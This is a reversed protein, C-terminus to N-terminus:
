GQDAAPLLITFTTGEGPTSRVKIRGGCGDIIRATIALGLGTGKGPEKTTFFPEFIRDLEDPAIGSGTDSVEMKLWPREGAGEEERLVRLKLTGGGPMADRANIALNILAQQVQHRDVCVPPLGEASEQVIGISKFAGQGELLAVCAGVLRPLEVLENCPRAPRAYDLLERVIRDIRSCDDGIRRLYDAKEADERLDDRLIEVYGMVAALPTGIEHAMGAALLGVSALKESRLTEERAHQLERNVRELSAVHTAVAEEKSRLTELMRNFAEALTAFEASGPVHVPHAYDGAAIRETAGLLKKMPVVVARSLLFSGLGLLLISDLLFYSLFLHRSRKLREHETGLTLTLRCLGTVTGRGDRLPHYRSVRDGSFVVNDAGSRTAAAVAPDTPPVSGRQFLPRAEADFLTIGGFASERALGDAFRAAASLAIGDAARNEPLLHVFAAILVRTEEGKQTLLDKEAIKFSILSLLIWTLGLLCALSSLIVFILSFRFPKV